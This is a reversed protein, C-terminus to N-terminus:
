LGYVVMSAINGCDEGAGKHLNNKKGEVVLGDALFMM